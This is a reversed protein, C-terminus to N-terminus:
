ALGAIHTRNWDDGTWAPPLNISKEMGHLIWAWM